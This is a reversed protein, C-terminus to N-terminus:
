LTEEKEDCCCLTFPLSQRTNMCVRCIPGEVIHATAAQVFTEREEDTFGQFVEASVWARGRRGPACSLTLDYAQLSDAAVVEFHEVRVVGELHTKYVLKTRWLYGAPRRKPDTM